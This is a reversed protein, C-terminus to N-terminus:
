REPPGPTRREQPLVLVSLPRGEAPVEFWACKSLSVVTGCQVACCDSFGGRSSGRYGLTATFDCFHKWFGESFDLSFTM